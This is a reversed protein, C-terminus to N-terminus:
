YELVRYIIYSNSETDSLVWFSLASQGLSDVLNVAILFYIWYILLKHKLTYDRYGSLLKMRKQKIFFQMMEFLRLCM